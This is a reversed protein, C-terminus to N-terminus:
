IYWSSRLSFPLPLDTEIGRLKLGDLRLHLRSSIVSVLSWCTAVIAFCQGPNGVLSSVLYLTRLFFTALIFKFGDNALSNIIDGRNQYPRELANYVAIVLILVDFFTQIAFAVSVLRPLSTLLCTVFFPNFKFLPQLELECAIGTALTAIICIFFAVILLRKVYTRQDWLAYVRLVVISHTVAGFIISAVGFLWLFRACSTNRMLFRLIASPPSVATGRHASLGFNGHVSSVLDDLSTYTGSFIYVSYTIIVETLYRNIGFAAKSAWGNKPNMWIFKFEMSLTLLHDYVICALGFATFYRLFLLTDVVETESLM